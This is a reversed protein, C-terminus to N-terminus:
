SGMMVLQLLINKVLIFDDGYAIEIQTYFRDLQGHRVMIVSYGVKEMLLQNTVVVFDNDGSINDVQGAVATLTIHPELYHVRDGHLPHLGLIEM